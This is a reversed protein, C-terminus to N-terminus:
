IKEKISNGLKKYIQKKCYSRSIKNAALNATLTIEFKPITVEIMVYSTM